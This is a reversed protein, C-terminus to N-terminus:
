PKIYKFYAIGQIADHIARDGWGHARLGDADARSVAAPTLTLKAAFDCLARVRPELEAQRYAHAAAPPPPSLGLSRRLGGPRLSMAKVINFVKGARAMAEDYERRLPGTAEEVDILRVHAM